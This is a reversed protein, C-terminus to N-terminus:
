LALTHNNVFSFVNDNRNDVFSIVTHTNVFSFVNHNYGVLWILNDCHKSLMIQSYLDKYQQVNTLEGQWLCHSSKGDSPTRRGNVKLM